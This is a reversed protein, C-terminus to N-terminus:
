LYHLSLALSCLNSREGEVSQEFSTVSPTAATSTGSVGSTTASYNGQAVALLPLAFVLVLMQFRTMHLSMALLSVKLFTPHLSQFSRKGHAGDHDTTSRM